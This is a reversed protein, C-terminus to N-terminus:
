GGGCGGGGGEHVHLHKAGDYGPPPESTNFGILEWGKRDKNGGYSPDGLLGEMTLVLLFEWFKAEGSAEPSNKFETLIEDQQAPKLAAFGAQFLGRARRDLAQLGDAVIVKVSQMEATALARDFYEPVNADIAGPDEDKPIIRECAATLVAFDENTFSRHSTTRASPAKAPAKGAKGPKAPEDKCAAGGLLVVGGGLFTLRHIFVRRSIDKESRRKRGM